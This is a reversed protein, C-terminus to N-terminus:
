RNIYRKRLFATMQGKNFPGIAIFDWDSGLSSLNLLKTQQRYQKSIFVTTKDPDKDLTKAKSQKWGRIKAHGKTRAHRPLRIDAMDVGGYDLRIVGGGGRRKRIGGDAYGKTRTHQPPRINTMDVDDNHDLRTVGRGGRPKPSSHDNARGRSVIVRGKHM